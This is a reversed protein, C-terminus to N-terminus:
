QNYDRVRIQGTLQKADVGFKLGNTRVLMVGNTEVVGETIYIANISGSSISGDASFQIARMAALTSSSTTPFAFTQVLGGAMVNDGKKSSGPFNTASPTFVVGPPLATWEKLYYGQSGNTSVFVAYSRNVRWAEAPLSSVTNSYVFVVHVNQRKNIAFQRALSLTSRVQAVSGNMSASRGFGRFAPMILAMMTGIIGIVVLLEILTFARIPDKQQGCTKSLHSM